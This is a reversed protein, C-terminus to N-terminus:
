RTRAQDVMQRRVSRIRHRWIFGIAVFAMVLGALSLAYIAWERNVPQQGSLDQLFALLDAQEEATLPHRDYIPAMTPWRMGALDAELDGDYSTVVRTLDPGMVGGGLLGTNGASHCGLCPTGGNRLRVTGAFLAEGRQPDGAGSTTAEQLAPLASFGREPARLLAVEGAAAWLDTSAPLRASTAKNGSCPRIEAGGGVVVSPAMWATPAALFLFIVVLCFSM